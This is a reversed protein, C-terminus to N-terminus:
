CFNCLGKDCPCSRLFVVLMSGQPNEPELLGTNLHVSEEMKAEDRSLCYECQETDGASVGAKGWSQAQQSERIQKAM